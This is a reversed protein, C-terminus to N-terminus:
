WTRAIRFGRMYPTKDPGRSERNASRCYNFDDEFSGGRLVKVGGKEPGKPNIQESASYAALWDQCWEWVNGSMDYVGAPSVSDVTPIAGNPSVSVGNFWGVPSTTGREILGLPNVPTGDTYNCRNGGVLEDSAFAYMWHRSGDWSAAREWEAETPLRYGNGKTTSEKLPWNARTMDYCPTVGEMESLWNCFAVAGYWSVAVMPHEAMPYSTGEPLGARSKPVFIGGAYSINCEARVTDVLIYRYDGGYLEGTGTWAVGDYTKLYGQTLAYNLVKCYEWNTIEYKGIQYANLYVSHVPLEDTAEGEIQDDPGWISSWDYPRGMEFAGAPISVLPVSEGEQVPIAGTLCFALNSEITLPEPTGVLLFNQEAGNETTVWGFRCEEQEGEGVIIKRINIFVPEGTLSECPPDLIATYSYVPLEGLSGSVSFNARVREPIVPNWECVSEYLDLAQNWRFISVAFNGVAFGCSGGTSDIEVGWWHVDYVKDTLYVDEGADLLSAGLDVVLNDFPLTTELSTSPYYDVSAGTAPQAFITEPPCDLLPAAEGEGEGPIEGEGELPFEGEGPTEGEGEVSSEGEGEVPPEGEVGTESEGEVVPEGEVPSEGEGEVSPEGEVGTEGEGEVVSEGEVLSEGEGEPLPEGEEIAEGEGETISEGEGEIVAEGEGEGEGEGEEPNCSECGRCGGSKIAKVVFDQADNSVPPCGTGIGLIALVALVFVALAIDKSDAILVGLKKGRVKLWTNFM